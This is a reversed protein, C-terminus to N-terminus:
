RRARRCPRRRRAARGGRRRPPRRRRSWASRGSCGGARCRWRCARAPGRRRWSGRSRAARRRGRSRRRGGPRPRTRSPRRASCPSRRPPRRRRRPSSGSASPRSRLARATMTPGPRSASLSIPGTTVRRPGRGCRRGSRCRRAAPRRRQDDVAAPQGDGAVLVAEEDARRDDVLDGRSHVDVRSSIKPGTSDITRASETSSAISRILALGYPLPVAM